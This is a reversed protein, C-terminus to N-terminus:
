RFSPVVKEVSKSSSMKVIATGSPTTVSTVGHFKGNEIGRRLSEAASAAPLETRKLGEVFAANQPRAIPAVSSSAPTSGPASWTM